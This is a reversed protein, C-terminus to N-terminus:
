RERLDAAIFGHDVLLPVSGSRNSEAAILVDDEYGAEVLEKGSVSALLADRPNPRVTEYAARATQAEPSLASWGADVLGSIVAGAGWLDEVAPRLAGSPWREGSAIVATTSGPVYQRAIWASVAGANRM